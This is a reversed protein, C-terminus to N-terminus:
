ETDPMQAATQGRKARVNLRLVRQHLESILRVAEANGSEAAAHIAGRCLSACREREEALMERVAAPSYWHGTEDDQAGDIITMLRPQGARDPTLGLGESSGLALPGLETADELMTVGNPKTTENNM